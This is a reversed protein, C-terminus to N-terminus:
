KEMCSASTVVWKSNYIFGGCFHNLDDEISVVYPFETVVGDPDPTVPTGGIIRGKFGPAGLNGLM